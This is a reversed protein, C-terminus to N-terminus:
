TNYEIKVNKIESHQKIYIDMYTMSAGFSVLAHLLCHCAAVCKIFQLHYLYFSLGYLGCGISMPLTTIFKNQTYFSLYIHYAISSKAVIMDITRRRSNMLPNIWYTLSTAYLAIGMYACHNMGYYFGTYIHSPHLFLATFFIYQYVRFPYALM